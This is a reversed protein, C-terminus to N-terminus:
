NQTRRSKLCIWIMSPCFSPTDTRSSNLCSYGRRRVFPFACRIAFEEYTWRSPYGSCSIRVTELVGCARLQNLVLARDLAWSRKEDNPKICRIYHIDTQALTDMLTKLSTKFISCQTPKRSTTVAPHSSGSKNTHHQYSKGAASTEVVERLFVNTSGLILDMHEDPVTGRNKELFGDVTYEVSHAYHAITFTDSTSRFLGGHTPKPTQSQGQGLLQWNLKEVFSGDTGAALRSEEDLIALLGLRGEILDITPQNDSFDITHWDIDESAYEAQQIKFVHSTFQQQLKENAYNICFQEFSNMEFHEFGYIDLVAIFMQEKRMVDDTGLSANVQAVLWDFVCSYIFKAVGDRVGRAQAVTRASKIDEGRAAFHKTATWKRFEKLDIGLMHMAIVLSVDKESIVADPNDRYQKIDVNGLHLLGALLEFIRMQRGNDIGVISLARKTTAFNSAEDADFASSALYAFESSPRDLSLAAREEPSAGACLQYFIHYNREGRQQFSIRARELLYTRIRAGIITHSADFLIQIYKGFRSSNDNRTTKANGFAELIPNTALIQREVTTPSDNLGSVAESAAPNVSALYRMIYKASLLVCREGSIIVTQSRRTHRMATYTEEAITFLHPELSDRSRGAYAEIVEPGYLPVDCFPNVAVLVIGSYTYIRKQAYRAEIVQLISPENLHPLSSLDAAQDFKSSNRLPPLRADNDVIDGISTRVVVPKGHRGNSLTLQVDKSNVIAEVVEGRVWGLERDDYWIPTGKSYISHAM